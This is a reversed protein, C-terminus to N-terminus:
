RVETEEVGALGALTHEAVSAHSELAGGYMAASSWESITAHMRYQVRLMRSVGEGHRAMLRDFLTVELGRRSAKKSKITPPLQKHDPGPAPYSTCDLRTTLALIAPSEFLRVM